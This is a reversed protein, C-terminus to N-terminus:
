HFDFEFSVAEDGPDLVELEVRAAAHAAFAPEPRAPLYEEPLFQRSAVPRGNLDRMTIELLPYPQPFDAQNVLTARIVLANEYRDHSHIDRESLEIAALDTRLPLRCDLLECLRELHPRLEPLHALSDRRHYAFQLVLTACLLLVLVSWGLTRALGGRHAQHDGELWVEHLESPEIPSSRATSREQAPTATPSPPTPEAEPPSELLIEEIIEEELLPTEDEAPLAAGGGAAVPAPTVSDAAPTSPVAPPVESFDLEKFDLPPIELPEHIFDTPEQAPRPKPKAAPSAKPKAAPPTQKPQPAPAPRQPRPTQPKPPTVAPKKAPSAPARQKGAAPRAATKPAAPAPTRKPPQKPTTVPRAPSPTAPKPTAPKPQPKRYQRPTAPPPASREQEVDLVLHETANFIRQCHGCRVKGQAADLQARTIRFVTQCEPCQTYM